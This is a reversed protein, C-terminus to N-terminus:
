RRRPSAESTLNYSKYNYSVEHRARVNYIKDGYINPRMRVEVGMKTKFSYEYDYESAVVAGNDPDYVEMSISGSVRVNQPVHTKAYYIVEKLRGSVANYRRVINAEAWPTIKEPKKWWSNAEKQDLKPDVTPSTPQNKNCGMVFSTLLALLIM